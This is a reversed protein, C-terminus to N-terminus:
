PKSQLYYEYHKGVQGLTLSPIYSIGWLTGSFLEGMVHPSCLIAVNYFCKECTCMDENQDLAKEKM